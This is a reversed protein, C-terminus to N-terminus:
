VNLKVRLTDQADLDDLADSILTELEDIKDHCLSLLYNELVAHIVLNRKEHYPLKDDVFIKLQSEACEGGTLYSRHNKELYVQINM